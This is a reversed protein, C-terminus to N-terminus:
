RFPSWIPIRPRAIRPQPAARRATRATNSPAPRRALASPAASELEVPATPPELSGDALLRNAINPKRTPSWPFQEPSTPVLATDSSASRRQVTPRDLRIEREARHSQGEISRYSVQVKLRSAKPARDPWPLELHIGRGLLTKKLLPTTEAADFEWSAVRGGIGSRSPDVVDISIDGPLPLYQGAANQPEIVVLLGDDGPLGDFDFGGTLRSNLVIRSVGVDVQDRTTVDDLSPPPDSFDPPPASEPSPGETPEPPSEGDSKLSPTSQSPGYDIEPITLDPEEFAPPPTAPTPRRGSSPAARNSSPTSPTLQQRELDHVQRRLSANARRASDLQACHINLQHDMEYLQDEMWRLESELLEISPDPGRCGIPACCVLAVISVSFSYRVYADM